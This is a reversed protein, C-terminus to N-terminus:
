DEQVPTLRLFAAQDDEAPVIQEVKIKSGASIPFPEQELAKSLTLKRQSGHESVLYTGFSKIVPGESAMM